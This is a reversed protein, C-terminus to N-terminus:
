GLGQQRPLPTLREVGVDPGSDGSVQRRLLDDEVVRAVLLVVEPVQAQQLREMKSLVERTITDRDPVVFRIVHEELCLTM